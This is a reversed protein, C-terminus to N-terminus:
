SINERLAQGFLFHAALRAVLPAVKLNTACLYRRSGLQHKGQAAIKAQIRTPRKGTYRGGPRGGVRRIPREATRAAGTQEAAFKWKIALLKDYLLLLEGSGSRRLYGSNSLSLCVSLNQKDTFLEISWKPPTTRCWCRIPPM